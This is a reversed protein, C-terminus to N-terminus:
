GIAWWYVPYDSFMTSTNEAIKIKKMNYNAPDVVSCLVEQASKRYYSVYVTSSNFNNSQFLVPIGSIYNYAIYGFVAKPTFDTPIDIYYTHTTTTNNYYSTAVGSAIRTGGTGTVGCVTNGAVIKDATIGLRNAMHSTEVGFLTNGTIYGNEGAYRILVRNVGDTNTTYSFVEDGVIVKTQNTSDYNIPSNESLRPISGNVGCITNGVLLKDATIGLQSAVDPFPLYCEAKGNNSDYNGGGYYGEPIRYYLRDNWVTQSTCQLGYQGKFPMTGTVKQGNVYATQGNLIQGATATAQTQSALSNATITGGSYYGESLKYSGGCSLTSTPAGNNVMTGSIAKGNSNNATYGTLLKDSTFTVDDASGGASACIFNGNYCTLAYVGGAKLDSVNSGDSLKIPAKVSDVTLSTAGTANTPIAVRLNYGDSLSTRSFGTVVNYSNASLETAEYFPTANIDSNKVYTTNIQNGDSDLASQAVSMDMYERTATIYGTPLASVTTGKWDINLYTMYEGKGMSIIDIVDYGESKKIYLDRVSESVKVMYAEINGRKVFKILAPDTSSSNDFQFIVTGYRGRQQIDFIIPQDQNARNVTIRAVYMYGATGAGGNLSKVTVGGNCIIRGTVTGGTKDLKGDWSTLKDETIKDLTTKNTHVHSQSVDIDTSTLYGSDNTLQSVKTLNGAHYIEKGGYSFVNETLLLDSDYTNGGRIVIEEDGALVIGNRSGTTKRLEGANNVNLTGTITDGTKDLKNSVTNWLTREASTIHKVTDSIHTVASNWLSRVTDLFSKDTKSMKGDVSSTALPIANASISIWKSGDWRYTIDTDKVNVTWGDQPNPYTTAIDAYTAVSEKWDMNSVVQSIKNDIEAKTYKDEWIPQNTSIAAQIAQEAKTARTTEANISTELANERNTARKVENNLNTQITNEANKARNVENDINTQLQKEANKARTTENDLNTQLQTEAEIARDTEANLGEQTLKIADQLDNVDDAEVTDGTTEYTIYLTPENSYVKIHKRWPTLSPTTVKYTNVKDGSCMSETYINITNTDVNDHELDAEYIGDIPTIIEEITYVNGDLKNLKQGFKSLEM